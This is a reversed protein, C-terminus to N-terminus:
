DTEKRKEENGQNPDFADVKEIPSKQRAHGSAVRAREALEVQVRVADFPGLAGQLGGHCFLHAPGAALRELHPAIAFTRFFGSSAGPPWPRALARPGSYSYM